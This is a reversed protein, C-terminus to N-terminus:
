KSIVQIRIIGRAAGEVLLECGPLSIKEEIAADLKEAEDSSVQVELVLHGSDYQERHVKKVGPLKKLARQFKKSLKLSPFPGAEVVTPRSLTTLKAGLAEILKKGLEEGAGQLANKAAVAESTHLYPVPTAYADAFLIEASDALVARIEVRANCAVLGSMYSGTADRARESFAEGTVLIDAGKRRALMVGKKPDKFYKKGSYRLDRYSAPDVTKFGAAVCQRLIETEAAPDPVPRSIHHEPIIVMVRWERLIGNQRLIAILPMASVYVEARVFYQGKEEGESLVKKLTVLGGAQKVIIQKILVLNEVHTKATVYSGMGEELATNLAATLAAERASAKDGKIVPARGVATIVIKEPGPSSKKEEAQRPLPQLLVLLFLPLVIHAKRIIM